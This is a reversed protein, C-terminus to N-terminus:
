KPLESTHARTNARLWDELADTDYIVPGRKGGIKIYPPGGGRLRWNRLAAVSFGVIPAAVKDRVRM